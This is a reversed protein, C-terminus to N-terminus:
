GICGAGFPSGCTVRCEPVGVNERCTATEGSGIKAWVGQAFDFSKGNEWIIRWRRDHFTIGDMMRGVASQDKRRPRLTHMERPSLQLRRQRRRQELQVSPLLAPRPTPRGM